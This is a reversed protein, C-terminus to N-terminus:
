EVEKNRFKVPYKSIVRKKHIIEFYITGTVTIPFDNLVIRYFLVRDYEVFDFNTFPSEVNIEKGRIRLTMEEGADEPEGTIGAVFYITKPLKTPIEELIKEDFINVITLDYNNESVLNPLVGECVFSYLVSLMSEREWM